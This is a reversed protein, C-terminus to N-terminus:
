NEKWPAARKVSRELRAGVFEDGSFELRLSANTSTYVLSCNNKRDQRSTPQGLARVFDNVSSWRSLGHPLRTTTLLTVTELCNHDFALSADAYIFTPLGHVCRTWAWKPKGWRAVADDMTMGLKVGAIEGSEKMAVLDVSADPIKATTNNTDVLAPSTIPLINPSNTPLLATFERHFGGDAAWLNSAFISWAILYYRCM